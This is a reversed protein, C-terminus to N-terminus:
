KLQKMWQVMGLEPIVPIAKPQAQPVEINSTGLTGLSLPIIAMM